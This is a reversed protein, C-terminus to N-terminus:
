RRLRGVKELILEVLRNPPLEKLSIYGVTNTMGPLETDDFRVPLIYEERAVVARDQAHQREHTTWPKAVYHRSVFM